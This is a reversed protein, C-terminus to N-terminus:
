LSMLPTTPGEEVSAAEVVVTSVSDVVVAAGELVPGFSLSAWSPRRGKVVEGRVLLTPDVVPSYVSYAVATVVEEM